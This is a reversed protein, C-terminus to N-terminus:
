SRDDSDDGQKTMKLLEAADQKLINMIRLVMRREGERVLSNETQGSIYTTVDIHGARMLDILVRQGQETGFVAQYDIVRQAQEGRKFPNLNM